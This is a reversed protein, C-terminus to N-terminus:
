ISDTTLKVRDYRTWSVPNFVPPFSQPTEINCDALAPVIALSLLEIGIVASSDVAGDRPRDRASFVAPTFVKRHLLFLTEKM